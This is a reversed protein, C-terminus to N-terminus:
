DCNNKHRHIKKEVSSAGNRPSISKSNRKFIIMASGVIEKPLSIIKVTMIICSEFFKPHQKLLIPSSAEFFYSNAEM